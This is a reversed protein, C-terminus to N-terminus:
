KLLSRQNLIAANMTNDSVEAYFIQTTNVSTHGLVKQVTTIPVGANLMNCAFSKRTTHPTIKSVREPDIGAKTAVREIWTGIAQGSLPKGNSNCFLYESVIKRNKLYGSLLFRVDPTLRLIQEKNEKRHVLVGFDSIDSLKIGRLEGQRVGTELMLVLMLKKSPKKISDVMKMQEDITLYFITKKPSELKDVGGIESASKIYHYKKLWNVFSSLYRFHTNVSSKSLGSDLLHNQYKLYDNIELKEIQEDVTINFYEIFKKIAIKYSSITYKSKDRSKTSFFEDYSQM